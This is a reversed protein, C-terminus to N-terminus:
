EAFLVKVAVPELEARKVSLLENVSCNVQISGNKIIFGDSLKKVTSKSIKFEGKLYPRVQEALRSDRESFWLTGKEASANAMSALFAAYENDPLTRLRNAALAFAEDIVDRKAALKLKRAELAAMSRIHNISEIAEKEADELSKAYSESAKKKSEEVISVADKKAESIVAEAATSAELTIKELINEVGM